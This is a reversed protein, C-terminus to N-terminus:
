RAGGLFQGFADWLEDLGDPIRARGEESACFRDIVAGMSELAARDRAVARVMSEYLPFAFASSPQIVGAGAVFSSPPVHMQGAVDGAVLMLALLRSLADQDPILSILLSDLRDTPAGDLSALLVLQRETGYAGRIRVAVLSTIEGKSVPGLDARASATWRVWHARTVVRCEVRDKAAISVRAWPAELQVNWREAEHARIRLTVPLRSIETALDDIRDQEVEQPTQEAPEDSQVPYDELLDRLSQKDGGDKLLAVRGIRRVPGHLELFAEVNREVAAVTANASGVFWIATDGDEALLLKAHLGTLRGAQSPDLDPDTGPRLVLRERWSQLGAGGVRDLEDPRSIVARRGGAAGALEALRSSKLFPSIVLRFQGHWPKTPDQSTGSAELGTAHLSGLEFPAPLAFRVRAISRALDDAIPSERLSSLRRLIGAADRGLPQGDDAQDLRTILDWSTDFTLNRSMVLIRHLLGGDAGRFRLFWLKPHFSGGRPAPTPLLVDELLASLKQGKDRARVGAPDCYVAMRGAYQQIAALLTMPDQEEGDSDFLAFALPILVLAEIDLTFTTGVAADLTYGPEPRLADMLMERASPALM